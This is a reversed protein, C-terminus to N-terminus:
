FLNTNFYHDDDVDIKFHSKMVNIQVTNEMSMILVFLSILFYLAVTTSHLPIDIFNFFFSRNFNFFQFPLFTKHIDM